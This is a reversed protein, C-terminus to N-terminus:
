SQLVLVFNIRFIPLCIRVHQRDRIQYQQVLGHTGDDEYYIVTTLESAVSRKLIGKVYQEIPPLLKRPNAPTSWTIMDSVYWMGIPM